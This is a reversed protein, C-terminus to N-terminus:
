ALNRLGDRLSDPRLGDWLSDPRVGDRLSDPRLGDWLSDPRLGDWLSDPRVGDWLSDPRLGDWLGGWFGLGGCVTRYSGSESGWGRHDAIREPACAGRCRMGRAMLWGETDAGGEIWGAVPGPGAAALRGGAALGIAWIRSHPSAIPAIM